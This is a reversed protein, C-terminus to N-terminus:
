FRREVLGLDTARKDLMAARHAPSDMWWDVVQQATGNIAIIESYMDYGQPLISAGADGRHVRNWDLTDNNIQRNLTAAWQQSGAGIASSVDLSDAGNATRYRNIASSVQAVFADNAAPAALPTAVGILPAPIPTAATGETPSTAVSGFPPHTPTATEAPAEPSVSKAPTEAPTKPPTTVAPTTVAPAPSPKNTASATAEPPAPDAPFSPGSPAATAPATPAAAAPALGSFLVAAAIASATALGLTKRM